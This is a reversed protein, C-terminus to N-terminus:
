LEGREMMRKIQLAEEMMQSVEESEGEEDVGVWEVERGQEDVMRPHSAFRIPPLGNPGRGAPQRSPPSPLPQSTSRLVTRTLSATNFPLLASASSPLASSGYRPAPTSPFRPASSPPAAKREFDQQASEFTPASPPASPTPNEHITLTSLLSSAFTATKASSSSSSASLLAPSSSGAEDAAAIDESGREAAAEALIEQTSRAVDKRREEVDELMEGEGDRGLIGRYWESRAKCRTSCYAGKDQASNPAEFLGNAMMRFKLRGNEASQEEESRYPTSAANGCAAYPCLGEMHREVLLDDYTPPDLFRAAKKLLPLPTSPSSLREVWDLKAALSSPGARSFARALSQAEFSALQDQDVSRDRPTSSTAVSFSSVISPTQRPKAPLAPM